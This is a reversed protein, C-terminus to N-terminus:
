LMLFSHRRSGVDRSAAVRYDPLSPAKMKGIGTSQRGLFSLTEGIKDEDRTPSSALSHM